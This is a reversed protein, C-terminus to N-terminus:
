LPKRMFVSYPDERYDGFPPCFDYGARQYLGIAERQHIGTELAMEACGRARAQAELFDMLARAAGKGRCQPRVYMRKLEGYAPACWVAGCGVAEGNEDRVVAFAAEPRLLAEVDVGHHSEPPYLPKQYADLEDILALTDPQDPRELRISLGAAALAPRKEQREQLPM